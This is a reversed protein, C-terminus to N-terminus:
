AYAAVGGIPRHNQIKARPSDSGVYDDVGFKKDIPEPTQSNHDGSIKSDGSSQSTSRVVTYASLVAGHQVTLRHYSIPCVTESAMQTIM